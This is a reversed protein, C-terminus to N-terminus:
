PIVMYPAAIYAVANGYAGCNPLGNTLKCARVDYSYRNGEIPMPSDFAFCWLRSVVAPIAPYPGWEPDVGAPIEERNRWRTDGVIRLFGDPDQRRIEYWEAGPSEEWTMYESCVCEVEQRAPTCVDAGMEFVPPQLCAALLVALAPGIM